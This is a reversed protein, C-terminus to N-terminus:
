NLTGKKTRVVISGLFRAIQRVEELLATAKEPNGISTEQCARVWMASERAERLAIENFRVFERRSSAGLGEQRNAAISGSAGVLQDILKRIGPEADVTRVFRIM